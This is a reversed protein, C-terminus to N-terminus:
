VAAEVAAAVESVVSQLLQDDECEAMIRVLSETGSKRILLRGRGKLEAEALAIVAQVKPAALPTQGM